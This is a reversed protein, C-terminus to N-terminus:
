AAERLLHIVQSRFGGAGKELERVIVSLETQAQRMGAEDKVDWCDFIQRLLTLCEPLNGSGAIAGDAWGQILSEAILHDSGVYVTPNCSFNHGTSKWEAMGELNGSSDKVGILNPRNNILGALAVPTIRAGMPDAPFNYAIVDLDPEDESCAIAVSNLFAADGGRALVGDLEWLHADKVIQKAEPLNNKCIGVVLSSKKSLGGGQRSLGAERLTYHMQEATLDPGEGMFGFLVAGDAGGRCVAKTHKRMADSDVSGDDRRFTILPVLLRGKVRAERVPM